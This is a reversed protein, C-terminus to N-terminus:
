RARCSGLQRLLAGIVSNMKAARVAAAMQTMV